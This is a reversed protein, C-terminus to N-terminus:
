WTKAIDRHIFKVSYGKSQLYQGFVVALSVSRHHGRACGIAVLDGNKLNPAWRTEMVSLWHQAASTAMVRARVSAMLGTESQSFSGAQINRVDAVFRASAPPGGFDYGFTEITVTGNKGPKTRRSTGRGSPSAPRTRASTARTTTTRVVPAAALAVAVANKTTSAGAVNHKASASALRVPTSHAKRVPKRAARKRAASVQKPMASSSAISPAASASSPSAHLALAGAGLGALMVTAIAIAWLATLRRNTSELARARAAHRRSRVEALATDTRGTGAYRRHTQSGLNTHM